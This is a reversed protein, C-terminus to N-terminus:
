HAKRWTFIFKSGQGIESEVWVLGGRNEVIKRVVALGIGTGKISTGNDLTQFVGFIKKQDEPAIGPGNDAVTLCWFLGRDEVLIEVKGDPNDNYKVANGILNSLV